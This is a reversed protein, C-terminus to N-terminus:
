AVPEEEQSGADRDGITTRSLDGLERELTSMRRWLSWLYGFVLIWIIAYATVLLPAAPLQDELPVEELPVFEDQAPPPQAEALGVHAACVGVIVILLSAVVRVIEVWLRTVNTGM